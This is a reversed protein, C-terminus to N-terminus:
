YLMRVTGHEAVGFGKAGDGTCFACFEDYASMTPGRREWGMPVWFGGLRDTSRVTLSDGDALRLTAEAYLGSADRTLEIADIGRSDDAGLVFGDTRDFGEAGIFRIATVSYEGFTAFLWVYERIGISEDRCGWTRDRIGSANLEFDRGGVRCRGRVDVTAQYHHLPAGGMPPFVQGPTFDALALRETACLTVTLEPSTITATGTDLDFQIAQGAFSGPPLEESIEIGVGDVSLSARARRGEANFSTSVHVTGFLRQSPDWFSLYANDKWASEIDGAVETHIPRALPSLLASM